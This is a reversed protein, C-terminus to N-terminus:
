GEMLNGTEVLKASEQMWLKLSELLFRNDERLRIATRFYSGDLGQFDTVSRLCIGRQGLFEFLSVHNLLAPAKVLFFNAASPFVRFGKLSGLAKHFWSSEERFWARSREQFATDRLVAVSLKQALRNCSWTEQHHWMKKIWSAPGLAFGARIGPLAFFKTLSRIVVFPSTERIQGAVSIEPMWDAFAEDMVVFVRQRAAEHLLAAVEERDLATGTPNNPHGLILCEIGKMADLIETLPFRFEESEKLSISRIEAGQLDLLRRYETFCPEILLAKKPRLARVALALLGMAGNGAIGNEPSLGYRDSIENCLDKAQPDPYLSLERESERYIRAVSDPIGLPNINCSFDLLDEERIGFIEAFRKLNGGHSMSDM